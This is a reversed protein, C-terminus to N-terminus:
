KGLMTVHGLKEYENKRKDLFRLKWVFVSTPLIDGSNNKAGNWATFIDNTKFVVVGWRAYVTLQVSTYDVEYPPLVILFADNLGDKNGPTFANPAYIAVDPTVLIKRILTDTCGKDSTAVLKTQREGSLTFTYNPEFNISSDQMDFYWQYTYANANPLTQNYYQVQADIVTTESPSFNFNAVPREHVTVTQNGVAYTTDTCNTQLDVYTIVPTYTGTNVYTHTPNFVFASDTGDGFSWKISYSNTGTQQALLNLVLPQCGINNTSSIIVAVPKANVLVSLTQTSPCLTTAPVSNTVYTLTNVGIVSNSPVFNNGIIGNGSWVGGTNLVIPALPLPSNYECQQTIVGTLTAAVFKVVNVNASTTATCPGNSITYVITNIGINSSGPNFLGAASINFLNNNATWIGGTPTASMTIPAFSNCYPGVATISPTPIPKVEVVLSSTRPCLSTTPVSNTSYLLTYTNAGALTPNFTTGVIGSSGSWVGLTSLTLPILNVPASSTCLPNITGTITSPVFQEVVIVISSTQACLVNGYSYTVTNNGITALSPTFIGLTNTAATAVFTGGVPNVLLNLALANSCKNTVPTITPVTVAGVNILLTSTSGCLGLPTSSTSYTLIHNNAGALTPNFNTGTVGNGSWVGLPSVTLPALNIIPSNVCQSAVTGTITSPIFLDVSISGTTTNACGPGGYTYALTNTGTTALSPTFVGSAALYPTVSWTGLVPIATLQITSSNSCVPANVALTPIAPPAITITSTGSTSCTVAATPTVVVTYVTNATVNALPNKIAPNNLGTAPSWLYSFTNAPPISSCNGFRFNPREFSNGDVGSLPCQDFNDADIYTSSTFGTNSFQVSLNGDWNPNFFCIDILLNSTGNWEYAQSFNYTNWGLAANINTPGFVQVLGTNDMTSTSLANSSVCKLKISFNDFATANSNFNTVNFALRNLKGPIIGAGLLESARILYQHKASEWTGDFPTTVGASTETTALGVQFTNTVACGSTALQCGTPPASGLNVDLSFSGAACTITNTPVVTFQPAVVPNAIFPTTVSNFTCGLNSKATLTYVYSGPTTFVGTTNATNTTTLPASPSWTYSYAGAPNVSSTFQVATNLCGNTLAANATITFDPVVNIIVTDKTVCNSAGGLNSVVYTSTVAPKVIPNSCPNCSFASGVPIPNGALDTWAFVTTSGVATLSATQPGCITRDPGANTAPLVDIFYNLVQTGPVPCANDKVIMVFSTNLGSSGSPPTWCVRAKVQNKIGPTYTVVVSAGPLAQAINPSSIKISDGPQPDSFFIDFCFPVNECIQLATSNGAPITGTTPNQIGGQGCPVTQNTCNSVIVIFDRMITGIINGLADRETVQVVIVYEGLTTPTFNVQGTTANVTIGAVPIAGSFGANYTNTVGLSEYASIFAYSLTHGDVETAGLNFCAPQGLCFNPFQEVSIDPSNNCTVSTNNLTAFHFYNDSIGVNINDIAGSRCCNGISFTWSNCASPLTITGIYDIRKKCNTLTSATPCLGGALIGDGPTLSSQTVTLNLNNGCGDADITQTAGPNFGSACDWFYTLKVEYVNNGLCKYTIQGGSIHSAFGTLSIFLFIIITFINKM